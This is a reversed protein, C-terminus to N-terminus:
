DAFGSNMSCITPSCDLTSGYGFGSDDDPAPGLELHRGPVVRGSLKGFGNANTGGMSEFGHFQKLWLLAESYTLPLSKFDINSLYMGGDPRHNFMEYSGGNDFVVYEWSVEDNIEKDKLKTRTRMMRYDATMKAGGGSWKYAEKVGFVRKAFEVRGDQDDRNKDAIVTPAPYRSLYGDFVWGDGGAAHIRHWQGDLAVEDAPSNGNKALKFLVEHRSAGTEAFLTVESGYPLKAVAAAKADPEARVILSSVWVYRRTSADDAKAAICPVMLVALIMGRIM